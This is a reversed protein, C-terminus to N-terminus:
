VVQPGVESQEWPRGSQWRRGGSPTRAHAHARTNASIFVDATAQIHTYRLTLACVDGGAM